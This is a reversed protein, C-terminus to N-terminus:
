RTVLRYRKRHAPLQRQSPDYIGCVISIIVTIDLPHTSTHFDGTAVMILRAWLLHDEMERTKPIYVTM